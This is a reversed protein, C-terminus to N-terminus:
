LPQLKEIECDTALMASKVDCDILYKWIHLDVLYKTSECVPVITLSLKAVDQVILIRGM